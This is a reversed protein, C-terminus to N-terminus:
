NRSPKVARLIFKFDHGDDELALPEFDGLWLWRFDTMPTLGVQDLYQQQSLFVLSEPQIARTHSPDGWLWESSRSPCIAYLLGGPKLVRYIEAFTAFFSRYDGQKGLHELVCYAHAGDFSDDELPWPTVELDHLIDAGCNPDHDITVLEDWEWKQAPDIKKRRSNGCGILLERVPTTLSIVAARGSNNKGQRV